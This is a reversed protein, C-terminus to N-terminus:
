PQEGLKAPRSRSTEQGEHHQQLNDLYTKLKQRARFLQNKVTGNPKGVIASIEEVSCNHLHYLTIVTRDDLNLADVAQSLQKQLVERDMDSSEAAAQPQEGIDVTEVPRKRLHSLAARYAITYLWTSFKSEFRFRKLNFYAKLFVDQALEERDELGPVMRNLLDWVLNQYREVILQYAGDDGALSQEILWRDEPSPTLDSAM